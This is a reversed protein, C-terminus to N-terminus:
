VLKFVLKTDRYRYKFIFFSLGSIVRFEKVKLQLIKFSLYM